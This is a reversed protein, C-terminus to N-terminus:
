ATEYEIISRVRKGGSSAWAGTAMDTMFQAYNNGGGVYWRSAVTLASGNNVAYGNAGGWSNGSKATTPLTIELTTANSTGDTGQHIHCKVLKGIMMFRYVSSGPAVAFGTLTPTWDFFLPFGQPNEAYSYYGASIATNAISYNSGGTVTVITNGGTYSCAVVYFYKGIDQVLVIKAGIPFRLAVNKGVIRFSNSSVYEWTDTDLYWGDQGQLNVWTGTGDLFQHDKNPLKPLFGHKAASANGTLNDSLTLKAEDVLFADRFDEFTISKTEPTSLPDAVFPILDANNITSATNLQTIKKDAM